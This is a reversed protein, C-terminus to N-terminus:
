SQAAPEHKRSRRKARKADAALHRGLEDTAEIRCGRQRRPRSPQTWCGGDRGNQPLILPHDPKSIFPIAPSADFVAPQEPRSSQEFPQSQRLMRAASADHLVRM